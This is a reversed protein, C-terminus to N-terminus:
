LILISKNSSIIYEELTFKLILCFPLNTLVFHVLMRGSEQIPGTITPCTRNEFPSTRVYIVNLINLELIQYYVQNIVVKLIEELNQDNIYTVQELITWLDRFSIFSTIFCNNQRGDFYFFLSCYTPKLIYLAM